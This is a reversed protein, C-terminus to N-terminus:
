VSNVATFFLWGTAQRAFYTSSSILVRARHRLGNLGQDHQSRSRQGESGLFQLMWKQRLIRWHQFNPSIWDLLKWSIANVLVFLANEMVNSGVMVKFKSRRVGMVQLKMRTGCHVLTSLKTFVYGISKLIINYTNVVNPACPRVSSSRVLLWSVYDRQGCNYFYIEDTFFDRGHIVFSWLRVSPRFSLRDYPRFVSSLLVESQVIHM